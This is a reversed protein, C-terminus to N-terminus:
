KKFIKYISIEELLNQKKQKLIDINQKHKLIQIKNEGYDIRSYPSRKFEEEEIIIQNLINTEKEILLNIREIKRSNLYIKIFIIILFVLGLFTVLFINIDKIMKLNINGM